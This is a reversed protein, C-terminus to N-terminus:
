TEDIVEKLRKRTSWPFFDWEDLDSLERVKLLLTDLAGDMGDRYSEVLDPHDEVVMDVVDVPVGTPSTDIADALGAALEERRIENAAERDGEHYKRLSEHRRIPVRRFNHLHAFVDAESGHGGCYRCEHTSVEPSM